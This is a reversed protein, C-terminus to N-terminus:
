GEAATAVLLKAQPEGALTVELRGAAMAMLWPWSFSGTM